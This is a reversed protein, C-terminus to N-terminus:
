FIGESTPREVDVGCGPCTTALVTPDVEPDYNWSVYERAGCAHELPGDIGHRPSLPMM